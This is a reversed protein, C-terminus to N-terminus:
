LQASNVSYFVSQQLLYLVSQNKTHRGLQQTNANTGQKLVFIPASVSQYLAHTYKNLPQLWECNTVLEINIALMTSPPLFSTM